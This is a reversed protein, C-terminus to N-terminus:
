SNVGFFSFYKIVVQIFLNLFLIFIRNLFLDLIYDLIYLLIFLYALLQQQYQGIGYTLKSIPVHMRAHMCPQWFNRHIFKNSTLFVNLSACQPQSISLLLQLAARQLQIMSIALILWYRNARESYKAIYPQSRQFLSVYVLM